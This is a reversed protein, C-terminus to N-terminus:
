IELCENFVGSVDKRCILKKIENFVSVDKRYRLKKIEKIVYNIVNEKSIDIMVVAASKCANTLVDTKCEISGM